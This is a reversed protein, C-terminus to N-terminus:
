IGFMGFVDSTDVLIDNPLNLKYKEGFMKIFESTPEKHKQYEKEFEEKIKDSLFVAEEKEVYVIGYMIGYSVYIEYPGKEVSFLSVEITEDYVECIELYTSKYHRQKETFVETKDEWKLM